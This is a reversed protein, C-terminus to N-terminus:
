NTPEPEPQLLEIVRGLGEEGLVERMPSLHLYQQRVMNVLEIQFPDGGHVLVYANVMVATKLVNARIRSTQPVWRAPHVHVYRDSGEALRLVWRSNDGAFTLTGYGGQEKIWKSYVELELLNAARLQRLVEEGIQAPTLKGFYLDMLEQGLVLVQNALQQLGSEGGAANDRIQKRLAGAHHKWTNFLIPEPVEGLLHQGIVM